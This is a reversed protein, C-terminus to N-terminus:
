EGERYPQIPQWAEVNALHWGIENDDLCWGCKGKLDAFNYDDVEYLDNAFHVVRYRRMGDAIEVTTLYDGDESPLKEACPIWTPIEITPQRDIIGKIACKDFETFHSVVRKDIWESLADADILRGM